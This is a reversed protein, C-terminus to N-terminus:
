TTFLQQNSSPIKAWGFSWNRPYHGMIVALNKLHRGVKNWRLCEYIHRIIIRDMKIHPLPGHEHEEFQTIYKVNGHLQIYEENFYFCITLSQLEPFRAVAALFDYPKEDAIAMDLDLSFLHLSFTQLIEIEELSYQWRPSYRSGPIMPQRPNRISLSTLTQGHLCLSSVPLRKTENSLKLVNVGRISCIFTDLVQSAELMSDVFPFNKVALTELSSIQSQIARVFPLMLQGYLELHQIRSWDWVTIRSGTRFFIPVDLVLEELPTFKGKPEDINNLWSSSRPLRGGHKHPLRIHLVQLRRCNLLFKKFAEIQLRQHNFIAKVSNINQCESVRRILGFTRM